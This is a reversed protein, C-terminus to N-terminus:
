KGEICGRMAGMQRGTVVMDKTEVISELFHSLASNTANM